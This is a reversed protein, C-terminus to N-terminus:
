ICLLTLLLNVTFQVLVIATPQHRLCYLRRVTHQCYCAVCIDTNLRSLSGTLQIRFSVISYKSQTGQSWSHQRRVRKPSIIQFTMM